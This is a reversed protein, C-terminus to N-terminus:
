NEITDIGIKILDLLEDFEDIDIHGNYDTFVEAIKTYTTLFPVCGDAEICSIMYYVDCDFIKLMIKLYEFNANYDEPTLVDSSPELLQRAKEIIDDNSSTSDPPSMPHDFNINATMLRKLDVYLRKCSANTKKWTDATGGSEPYENFWGFAILNEVSALDTNRAHFGNRITVSAGHKIVTSIQMLTIKGSTDGLSKAFKKHYNNSSRGPNKRWDSSGNDVYMENDLDFQCPLFMQLNVNYEKDSSLKLDLYTQIVVHDSWAAGGGYLTVCKNPNYMLMTKVYETAINVMKNFINPNVNNLSYSIEDIKVVKGASGIVSLTMEEAETKLNMTSIITALHDVYKVRITGSDVTMSSGPVSTVNSSGPVSTVNSSGPVTIVRSSPGAGADNVPVPHGNWIKVNCNNTQRINGTDNVISNNIRIQSIKIKTKRPSNTIITKTPTIPKSVLPYGVESSNPSPIYAINAQNFSVHTPSNMIVPNVLGPENSTLKSNELIISAEYPLQSVTSTNIQQKNNINLNVSRLLRKNDPKKITPIIANNILLQPRKDDKATTKTNNQKVFSESSSLKQLDPILSLSCDTYGSEKIWNIIYRSYTKVIDPVPIGAIDTNPNM